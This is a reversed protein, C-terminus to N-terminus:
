REACDLADNLPNIMSLKLNAVHAIEVAIMQLPHEPMDSCPLFVAIPAPTPATPPATKVPPLVHPVNPPAATPPTTPCSILWYPPDTISQWAKEKEPIM